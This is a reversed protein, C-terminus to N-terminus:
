YIKLFRGLDDCGLSIRCSDHRYLVWYCRVLIIVTAVCNLCYRYLVFHMYKAKPISILTCIKRLCNCLFNHWKRHCNHKWINHRIVSLLKPCVQFVNSLSSVIPMTKYTYEIDNEEGPYVMVKKLSEVKKAVRDFYFYIVIM